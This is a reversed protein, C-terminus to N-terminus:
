AELETAKPDEAVAEINEVNQLWLDYKFETAKTRSLFNWALYTMDAMSVGNQWDTVKKNYKLEWSVIDPVGATVEHSTGDTMTVKLELKM